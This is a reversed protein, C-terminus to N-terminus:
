TVHNCVLPPELAVVHNSQMTIKFLSAGLDLKSESFFTPIKVRSIMPSIVKEFRFQAKLLTLHGRFTEEDLPNLLYQPSIIGIVNM